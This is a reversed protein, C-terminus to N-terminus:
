CLHLSLHHTSYEWLSFYVKIIRINNTQFVIFQINLYVSRLCPYLYHVHLTVSILAIFQLTQFKYGVKLAKWLAVHIQQKLKSKGSKKEMLGEIGGPLM